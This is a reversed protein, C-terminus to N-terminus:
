PKPGFVHMVHHLNGASRTTTIVIQLTRLVALDKPTTVRRRGQLVSWTQGPLQLVDERLPQWQAHGQCHGAAFSQLEQSDRFLCPCGGFLLSKKDHRVGLIMPFQLSFAKRSLLSLLSYIFFLAFFILSTTAVKTAMM